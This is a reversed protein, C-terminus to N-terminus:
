GKRLLSECKLCRTAYPLAKLRSAAIPRSCSVCIGYKAADLRALASEIQVIEARVSNDLDALVEDNERQVVQESFDAELGQAHRVDFAIRKVRNLLQVQREELWRRTEPINM